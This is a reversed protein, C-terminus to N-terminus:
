ECVAKRTTVMAEYKVNLLSELTVERRLLASMDKAGFLLVIRSSAYDEAQSVAGRSFGSMSLFIGRVDVRNAIKGYFDRISDAEIPAQQWKCELLFYERERHLVLDIEESDTRVNERVSWGTRRALDGVLGELARGRAHSETSRIEEFRSAISADLRREKVAELGKHTVKYTDYTLTDVYDLRSLLLINDSLQGPDAGIHRTMHDIHLGALSGEEEHAKALLDLIADRLARNAAIVSAASLGEEECRLIGAPTIRCYSGLTVPTVLGEDTLRGAVSWFPAEPWGSEERVLHLSILSSRRIWGEYARSLILNRVELEEM